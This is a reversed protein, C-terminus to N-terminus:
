KECLKLFDNLFDCTYGISSDEETSMGFFVKQFIIVFMFFVTLDVIHRRFVTRFIMPSLKETLFRAFFIPFICVLYFFVMM